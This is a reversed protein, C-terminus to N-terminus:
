VYITFIIIKITWGAWCMYWFRYYQVYLKQMGSKQIISYGTSSRSKAKYM